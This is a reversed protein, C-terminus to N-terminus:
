NRKNYKSQVTKEELIEKRLGVTPNLVAFVLGGYVLLDAILKYYNEQFQSIKIYYMYGLYVFGVIWIPIFLFPRRTFASAMMLLSSVATMALFFMDQYYEREWEDGNSAKFTWRENTFLMSAISVGFLFIAMGICHKSLPSLSM